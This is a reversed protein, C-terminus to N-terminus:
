EARVFLRGRPDDIACPHFDMRAGDVIEYLVGRRGPKLWLRTKQASVSKMRASLVTPARLACTREERGTADLACYVFRKRPVHKM